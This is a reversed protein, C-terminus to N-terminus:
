GADCTPDPGALYTLEAHAQGGPALSVRAPKASTRVLSVPQNGAAGFDAGPFGLLSCPWGSVNTFVIPVRYQSSAIQVATGLEVTVDSTACRLPNASSEPAVRTGTAHTGVPPTAAIRVGIPSLQSQLGSWAVAVGVTGCAEAAVQGQSLGILLGAPGVATGAYNDATPATGDAVEAQEQDVNCGIADLKTTAATTTAAALAKLSSGVFLQSATISAGTTSEVIVAILQTTPHAGGPFYTSITWTGSVVVSDARSTTFTAQFDGSGCAPGTCPGQSAVSKTYDALAATAPAQLSASAGEPLGLVMLQDIDIAGVDGKGVQHSRTLRM